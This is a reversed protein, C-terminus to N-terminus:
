TEFVMDCMPKGDEACWQAHLRAYSLFIYSDTSFGLEKATRDIWRSPGELELFVGIPTEDLMVIGSEGERTFETRYKEYRWSPVFGLGAFLALCEALDSAEFEREERRRHPGPIEVGKFTCIVKRGVMRVRLLRGSARVSGDPKDLVINQEYIRRATTAFGLRRLTARIPAVSPVAIKVENEERTKGASSGGLKSV